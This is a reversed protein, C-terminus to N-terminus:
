VVREVRMVIAGKNNGYHGPSDNAFFSLTGSETIDIEKGTGIAFGKSKYDENYAGCGCFCKVGKVRLGAIWAFINFFGNPGCTIYADKWRQDGDCSFSYQEGKKVQLKTDPFEERAVITISVNEGAAIQHLPM